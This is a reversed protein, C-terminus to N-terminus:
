AIAQNDFELNREDIDNKECAKMDEVMDAIAEFNVQTEELERRDEDTM